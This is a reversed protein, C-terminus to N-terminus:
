TDEKKMSSVLEQFSKLTSRFGELFETPLPGKPASNISNRLEELKELFAQRLKSSSQIRQEKKADRFIELAFASNADKKQDSEDIPKSPTPTIKPVGASVGPIGAAGAAAALVDVLGSAVARTIKFQGQILAAPNNKGRQLRFHGLRDRVFVVDTKGKACFATEAYYTQWKVQNELKSLIRWAPDAPDQLRNIQTNLFEYSGAIQGAVDRAAPTLGPGKSVALAANMADTIGKGVLDPDSTRSAAEILRSTEILRSVALDGKSTIKQALTEIKKLESNFDGIRQRFEKAELISKSTKKLAESMKDPVKLVVSDAISEFTKARKGLEKKTLNELAAM